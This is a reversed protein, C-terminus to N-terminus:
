IVTSLAKDTFLYNMTGFILIPLRVYSQRTWLAIGVTCILAASKIKVSLKECLTVM